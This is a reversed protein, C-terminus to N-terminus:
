QTDANFTYATVIKGEHMYAHTKKRKKKKVRKIKKLILIRKEKEKKKNKVEAVRLM